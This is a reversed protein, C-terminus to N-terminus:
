NLRVLETNLILVFIIWIVYTLLLWFAIVNIRLFLVLVLLSLVVTIFGIIVGGGLATMCFTAIIWIVTFALLVYFAVLALFAEKAWYKSGHKRDTCFCGWALFILYTAWGALAAFIFWGVFWLLTNPAWWPKNLIGYISSEYGSSSVGSGYDDYSTMTGAYAMSGGSGSSAAAASYSSSSGGGYLSSISLVQPSCLLLSVFIWFIPVAVLILGFLKYWQKCIKSNFLCCLWDFNNRRCLSLCKKEGM